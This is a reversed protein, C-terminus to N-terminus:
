RIKSPPPLLLFFTLILSLFPYSATKRTTNTEQKREKRQRAGEGKEKEKKQSQFQHTRQLDVQCRKSRRQPRLLYRLRWNVEAHQPGRRPQQRQLCDRNPRASGPSFCARDRPHGAPLPFCAQRGPPGAKDSLAPPALSSRRRLHHGAPHTSPCTINTLRPVREHRDQDCYQCQCHTKRGFFLSFSRGVGTQALVSTATAPLYTPVGGAPSVLAQRAPPAETSAAQSPIMGALRQVRM